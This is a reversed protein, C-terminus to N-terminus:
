TSLVRLLSTYPALAPRRARVKSDELLKTLATQVGPQEFHAELFARAHERAYPFLREAVFQIPAVTGEIDLVVHKPIKEPQAM